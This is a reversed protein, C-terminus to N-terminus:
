IFILGSLNLYPGYLEEYQAVFFLSVVEPPIAEQPSPKICSTSSSYNGQFM